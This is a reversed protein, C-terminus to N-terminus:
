VDESKYITSSNQIFDRIDQHYHQPFIFNLKIAVTAAYKRFLELLLLLSASIEQYSEVSYTKLLQKWILPPLYKELWKYDKGLNVTFNYDFGIDWSLMRLFETRVINLHEIAYLQEKRQVAKHVYLSVWYFETCSDLYNAATPKKVYYDKESSILKEKVFGDKDLLIEILSDSQLYATCEALPVLILDIRIGDRYQILFSYWNGLTNPWLTGAEPEQMILVEGFEKIWDRSAKWVEIDEVVFVIDYDQYNDKRVQPNTRSGNMAVLRIDNHCNAFDTIMQLVEKESRM